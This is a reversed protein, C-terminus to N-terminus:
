KRLWIGRYEALCLLLFALACLHLLVGEVWAEHLTNWTLTVVWQEPARLAWWWVLLWVATLGLAVLLAIFRVASLRGVRM